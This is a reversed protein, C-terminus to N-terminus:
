EPLKGALVEAIRRLLTDPTFPKALFGIDPRELWKRVVVHDTYGSMFLVKMDPRSSALSAAVEPGMTGPMVMDSLLLHIPGDHQASIEQAEARNRASLVEHSGFALVRRTADRVVDDDEVILIVARAAPSFREV